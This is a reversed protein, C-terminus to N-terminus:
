IRLNIVNARWRSGNEALYAKILKSISPTVPANYSSIREPKGNVVPTTGFLLSSLERFAEKKCRTRLSKWVSDYQIIAITIFIM